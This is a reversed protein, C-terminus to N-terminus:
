GYTLIDWVDTLDPNPRVWMEGASDPGDFGDEPRWPRPPEELPSMFVPRKRQVMYQCQEVLRTKGLRMEYWTRGLTNDTLFEVVYRPTFFQNRVALERSTRPAQSERIKKREDPDNYYQYVWGITEDEAWLHRLEAGNLLALVDE